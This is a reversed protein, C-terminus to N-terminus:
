HPLGQPPASAPAPLFYYLLITKGIREVPSERDPWLSWEPHKDILGLRYAKWYTLSVANWGVEPRRPRTNVLPPLGPVPETPFPHFAVSAARLEHLRKALRTMDQGWDLDSDVVINEPHDGVLENFYPIYDPHCLASSATLWLLLAGLPLIAWRSTKFQDLLWVAGLAATISFGTYVPLVHRVGINVRSTLSFLLIGLSFALPLWCALRVQRGAQGPEPSRGWKKFCSVVGIGLLALFALPTKVGLVVPYYYWWGKTGNHGLFYSPHGGEAHEVVKAIGAYLAPAPLRVNWFQSSAAKQQGKDLYSYPTGISFRYGAWITLLGIAAAFCFPLIRQRAAAALDPLRPRVMALYLILAALLSMPLFVLSTFKSLVALATTAGFLASRRWDPKELWVLASLFAAGTFATLAMDTTALGAHALVPPLFTYFFVALAAAPEGFYRRTWLYVVLSAIWFFPLIGLRAAALNDLYNGEFVLIAEGEYYMSPGNMSRRGLLYPGVAAAVRALPPHQPELKYIGKDLWEMGCAIHAPEDVTHNFVTYTSIIRASGIGVLLVFIPISLANWRSPARSLQPSAPSQPSRPEKQRRKSV